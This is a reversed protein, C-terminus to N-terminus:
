SINRHHYCHFECAHNHSRHTHVRPHRHHHPHYLCTDPIEPIESVTSLEAIRNQLAAPTGELSNAICVTYITCRPCKKITGFIWWGQRAYKSSTVTLLGSIPRSSVVHYNTLSSLNGVRIQWGQRIGLGAVHVCARTLGSGKVKLIFECVFDLNTWPCYFEVLRNQGPKDLPVVVVVVVIEM